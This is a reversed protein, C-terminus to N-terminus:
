WGHSSSRQEVTIEICHKKEGHMPWLPSSGWCCWSFDRLCHTLSFGNNSLIMLESIEDKYYFTVLVCCCFKTSINQICLVWTPSIHNSFINSKKDTIRVDTLITIAMSFYFSVIIHANMKRSANWVYEHLVHRIAKSFFLFISNESYIVVLESSYIKCLM